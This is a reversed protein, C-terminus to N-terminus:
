WWGLVFNLSHFDQTSKVYQLINVSFNINVGRFIHTQMFPLEFPNAGYKINNKSKIDCVASYQFYISIMKRASISM